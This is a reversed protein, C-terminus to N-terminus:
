VQTADRISVSKLDIPYDDCYDIMTKGNIKFFLAFSLKTNPHIRNAYDNIIEKQLLVKNNIYFDDSEIDFVKLISEDENYKEIILSLGISDFDKAFLLANRLDIDDAFMIYIYQKDRHSSPVKLSVIRKLSEEFKKRLNDM